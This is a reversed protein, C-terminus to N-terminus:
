RNGLSYFNWLVCDRTRKCLLGCAFDSPAVVAALPPRSPIIEVGRNIYRATKCEDPTASIEMELM